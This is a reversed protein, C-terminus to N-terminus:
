SARIPVLKAEPIRVALARALLSYHGVERFHHDELSALVAPQYDRVICNAFGGSGLRALGFRLLGDVDPAEAQNSLIGLRRSQREVQLWGSLRPATEVVYDQRRAARFSLPFALHHVQWGDTWRWEHLTMGEAQRVRFPVTVCYLQFLSQHDSARRPRLHAVVTVHAFTPVEPLAYVYETCYQFFGARNAWELAPDNVTLRLFVKQIGEDAAATLLHELLRTCTRGADASPLILLQDIQWVDAGERHKATVLGSIHGHEIQVWTERGPELALSHSWFDRVTPYASLAERDDDTRALAVQRCFDVYALLDTPRLARIM